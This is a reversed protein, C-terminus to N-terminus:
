WTKALLHEFRKGRRGLCSRSAHWPPPYVVHCAVEATALPLVSSRGAHLVVSWLAARTHMPPPLAWLLPSGMM